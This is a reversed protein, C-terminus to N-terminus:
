KMLCALCTTASAKSTSFLVANQEALSTLYDVQKDVKAQLQGILADREAICAVLNEHKAHGEAHEKRHRLLIREDDDMMAGEPRLEKWLMELPNPPRASIVKILATTVTAELGTQSLYAATFGCDVDRM